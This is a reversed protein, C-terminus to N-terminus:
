RLEITCAGTVLTNGHHSINGKTLQSHLETAIGKFRAKGVGRRRRHLVGWAATL